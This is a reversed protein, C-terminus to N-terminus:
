VWTQKVEFGTPKERQWGAKKPTIEILWLRLSSNRVGLIQKNQDGWKQAGYNSVCKWSLM